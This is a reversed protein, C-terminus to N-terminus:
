LISAINIPSRLTDFAHEHMRKRIGLDAQDHHLSTDGGSTKFTHIRPVCRYRDSFVIIMQRSIILDVQQIEIGHFAREQGSARYPTSHGLKIQATECLDSCLAREQLCQGNSDATERSQWSQTIQICSSYGTWTSTNRQMLSTFYPHAL